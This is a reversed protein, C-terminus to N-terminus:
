PIDRVATRVELAVSGVRIRVPAVSTIRGVSRTVSTEPSRTLFTVQVVRVMGPLSGSCGESSILVVRNSPVKWRPPGVPRSTVLATRVTLFRSLRNEGVTVSGNSTLTPPVSAM